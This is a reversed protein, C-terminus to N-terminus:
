HSNLESRLEVWGSRDSVDVRPGESGIEAGRVSMESGMPENELALMLPWSGMKSHWAVLRCRCIKWAYTHAITGVNLKHNTREHLIM